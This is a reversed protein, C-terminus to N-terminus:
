GDTIAQSNVVFGPSPFTVVAMLVDYFVSQLVVYRLMLRQAKMGPVVPYIAL